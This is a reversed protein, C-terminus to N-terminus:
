RQSICPQPLADEGQSCLNSQWVRSDRGPQLHRDRGPQVHSDRGFQVHSDRGPQVHPSNRDPKRVHSNRGCQVLQSNRVPQVVSSAQFVSSARIRQEKLRGGFPEGCVHHPFCM